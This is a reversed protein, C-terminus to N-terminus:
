RGRGPPHLTDWRSRVQDYRGFGPSKNGFRDDLQKWLRSVYGDSVKEPLRPMWGLRYVSGMPYGRRPDPVSGIYSALSALGSQRVLSNKGIRHSCHGNTGTIYLTMAGIVLPRQRRSRMSDHGGCGLRGSVM